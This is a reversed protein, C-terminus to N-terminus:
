RPRCRRKDPRKRPSCLILLGRAPIDISKNKQDLLIRFGTIKNDGREGQSVEAAEVTEKTGDMLSEGELTVQTNDRGNKMDAFLTKGKAFVTQSTFGELEVIVGDTALLSTANVNAFGGSATTTSSRAKPALSVDLKPTYLTQKSLTKSKSGQEPQYAWAVVNGEALLWSPVPMKGGGAIATRLELRDANVGSPKDADEIGANARNAGKVHVNGTAVLHELAQATKADPSPAVLIDLLDSDLSFDVDTISSKGTFVARRIAMKKPGKGVVRAADALEVDLMHAWAVVLPNGAVNKENRRLVSQPVEMRGPGALHVLNESRSFTVGQCTLTRASRVPDALDADTIVVPGVDGPALAVSQAARHYQLIGARATRTEDRVLVPREMTGVAEIAIDRRDTLQVDGAAAPRMEMPGTWRVELDDPAAKPAPATAAVATTAPASAATTAAPAPEVAKATTASKGGAPNAPSQFFVFLQDSTLKRGGLTATVEKGLSVKYVIPGPKTATAAQTTIGTASPAAATSAVAPQTGANAVANGTGAGARTTATDDLSFGQRGVDKFLMYNDKGSTPEIRLLEIEQKKQSRNFAITLNEGDFRLKDQDARLHVLGPSTVIGEAYNLDLDKEFRVQFQGAKIELSTGMFSERPGYTLVVNGALHAGRFRDSIGAKVAGTRDNITITGRDARIYLLNGDTTYYTAMPETLEYQGVIQKNNEDKLPAAKKASLLYLLDGNPARQEYTPPRSERNDEGGGGGGAESPKFLEGGHHVSLAM